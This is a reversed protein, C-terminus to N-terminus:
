TKFNDLKKLFDVISRDCYFILLAKREKGTNNPMASHLTKPHWLLVDGYNLTPQVYNDLYFDNYKGSYCKKIDFYHKQSYPVFGTSGSEASFNDLPILCQIGLLEEAKSFDEFRYPTDIHPRVTNMQPTTCVIDAHYFVPNKIQYKIQELLKLNLRQVLSTDKVSDTWYNTWQENGTPQSIYSGDVTHGRDIRVNSTTKKFNDLSQIDVFDKLIEWGKTKIM